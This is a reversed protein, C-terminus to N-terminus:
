AFLVAFFGIPQCLKARADRKKKCKKWARVARSRRSVEENWTEHLVSVCPLSKKRDIQLILYMGKSNLWQFIALIQCIQNTAILAIFNSEARIWKKPSTKGGM